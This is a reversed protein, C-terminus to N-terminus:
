EKAATQILEDVSLGFRQSIEMYNKASLKGARSDLKDRKTLSVKTNDWGLLRALVTDFGNRTHLGAVCEDLWVRRLIPYIRAFDSSNKKM